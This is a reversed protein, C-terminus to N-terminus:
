SDSHLFLELRGGFIYVTLFFIIRCGGVAKEKGYFIFFRLNKGISTYFLMYIQCRRENRCALFSLSFFFSDDVLRYNALWCFFGM